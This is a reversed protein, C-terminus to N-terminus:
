WSDGGDRSRPAEPPLIRGVAGGDGTVTEALPATLIKGSLPVAGRFNEVAVVSIYFNDGVGGDAGRGWGIRARGQAPATLTGIYRDNLNSQVADGLIVRGNGTQIGHVPNEAGPRLGGDLPELLNETEAGIANNAGGGPVGNDPEVGGHGLQVIQPALALM